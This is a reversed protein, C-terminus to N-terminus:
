LGRPLGHRDGGSVHQCQRVARPVNRCTEPDAARCFAAFVKCNQPFGTAFKQLAEQVRNEGFVLQGQELALEIDEVPKTKSVAVLQIDQPRRGARKAATAIKEKTENWADVSFM